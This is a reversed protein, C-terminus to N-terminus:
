LDYILAIENCEPFLKCKACDAWIKQAPLKNKPIEYFGLNEFFARRYTLTFVSKLEYFKAEKLLEKVMMSGVGRGRTKEDVILSRVEALQPTHIHLACFGVIKGDECAAVYSRINTSVEDDSRPLIVGKAVEPAVLNQMQAVDKPKPKKLEIM